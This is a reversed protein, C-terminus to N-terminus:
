FGGVGFVAAVQLSKRHGKEAGEAGFEPWGQVEGKREDEGFDAPHAHDDNVGHHDAAERVAGLGDAGDADAGTEEEYEGEEAFAEHNAEVSEDGLGEARTAALIAVAGKEVADIEAEGNRREQGERNPEEGQIELAEADGVVDGDESSGVNASEGGAEEREKEVEGNAAGKLAHVHNAGNGESEEGRVEDVDKAIVQEDEALQAEGCEADCAGADGSGDGASVESEDEDDVEEPVIGVVFGFEEFSRNLGVELADAAENSKTKGGCKLEGGFDADESENGRKDRTEASNREGCM